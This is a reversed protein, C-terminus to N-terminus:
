SMYLDHQLIQVLDLQHRLGCGISQLASVHHERFFRSVIREDDYTKSYVREEGAFSVANTPLTINLHRDLVTVIGTSIDTVPFLLVM